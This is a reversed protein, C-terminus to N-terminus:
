EGLAADFGNGGHREGRRREREACHEGSRREDPASPGGAGTGITLSHAAGNQLVKPEIRHDRCMKSEM